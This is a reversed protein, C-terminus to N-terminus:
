FYLLFFLFLPDATRGIQAEYEVGTLALDPLGPFDVTLNGDWVSTGDPAASFTGKGAFPAPAALRARTLADNARLTQPGAEAAAVRVIAMAGRITEQNALLETKHGKAKEALISASSVGHQWAAYLFGREPKQVVHETHPVSSRALRARAPRGLCRPAVERVTGKARRAAVTLYGGEGRFRFSGVFVGHRVLFRHRGRCKTPHTVSHGGGQQFRMSVTGLDGIRARLRGRSVSGRVLYATLSDGHRGEKAVEVAVDEGFGLVAVRYGGADLELKALLGVPRSSAPGRKAALELALQRLQLARPSPPRPDAGAAPALCAAALLAVLAAAGLRRM